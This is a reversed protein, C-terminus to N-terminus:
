NTLPLISNRGEPERLSVAWFLAARIPAFVAPFFAADVVNKAFPSAHRRACLGSKAPKVSQDRLFLWSVRSFVRSSVRAGLKFARPTSV